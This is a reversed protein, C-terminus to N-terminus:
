RRHERRQDNEFQVGIRGPNADIETQCGYGRQDTLESRASEDDAVTGNAHALNCQERGAAPHRHRDDAARRAEHQRRQDAVTDGSDRRGGTRLQKAPQRDPPVRRECKRDRL